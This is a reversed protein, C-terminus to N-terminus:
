GTMHWGVPPCVMFCIRVSDLPCSPTPEPIYSFDANATQWNAFLALERDTGVPCRPGQPM